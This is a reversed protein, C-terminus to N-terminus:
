ETETESMLTYLQNDSCVLKSIQCCCPWPHTVHLSTLPLESGLDTKPQMVLKRSNKQMCVLWSDALVLLLRLELWASHTFFYQNGHLTGHELIGFTTSNDTQSACVGAAHAPPLIEALYTCSQEYLIETPTHIM